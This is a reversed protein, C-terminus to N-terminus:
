KLSRKDFVSDNKSACETHKDSGSGFKNLNGNLHILM